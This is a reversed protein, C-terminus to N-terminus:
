RLALREIEALYNRLQNLRDRPASPFYQDSALLPAVKNVASVLDKSPGSESSSLEAELLNLMKAISMLAVDDRRAFIGALTRYYGWHEIHTYAGFRETLDIVELSRAERTTADQTIRWLLRLLFAERFGAESPEFSALLDDQQEALSLDNRQSARLMELLARHKPSVLGLLRALQDESLSPSLEQALDIRLIQYAFIPDQTDRQEGLLSIWGAKGSRSRELNASALARDQEPLTPIGYDQVLNGADIGHILRLYYPLNVSPCLSRVHSVGRSMPHVDVLASAVEGVAPHHVLRPARMALLNREDVIPEASYALLAVGNEDVALHALLETPSSIGLSYFYDANDSGWQLRLSREPQMPEDSAVWLLSGKVPQYLRVHPFASSLTAAFSRVLGEDLFQEGVWQLFVGGSNLRGRVLTAFEETYLHSAGATWPHSPQSVIVDYRKDSLRLASRADNVVLKIRADDLATRNRIEAISQNARVVARSLEVVDISRVSPPIDAAASGGGLGILMMSESQPRIAIPLAVLWSDASHSTAGKKEVFSEPLGNTIFKLGATQDLVSVSASKGVENFVIPGRELALNIPSVRTVNVPLQPRAMLLVAFAIAIATYHIPKARFMIVAAVAVLLSAVVAAICTGHYALSPLLWAGTGLAGCIGGLTSVSYVRAAATAAESEDKALVRIAFPFALGIGTAMPLLTGMAVMVQSVNAAGGAWTPWGIAYDLFQYAFVTCLAVFVQAYIYGMAAAKRSIALRAAIAGGIAIGMLFGALMTAFAYVSGGLFHSIMRTFLIEGAFSIVGGAFVLILITRPSLTNLDLRTDAAKAKQKRKSLGERSRRGENTNSAEDSAQVPLTNLAGQRALLLVVLFVAGNCLAGFWTTLRMGVAPMLVFAAVLTGLVAGATNTAYLLGVRPGLENDNRVVHRALLPLTAGMLATPVLILGLTTLLNFANQNLAGADPPEELHGLFHEQLQQALSIGLPILLASVAILLELVGYTLLPRTIRNVQRSAVWSGFALGGMYSALVIGLAQDSTGFLIAFQRLWVTEYLLAAFGSIFFCIGILLLSGLRQPPDTSPVTM